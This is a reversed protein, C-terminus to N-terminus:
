HADDIGAEHQGLAPVSLDPRAPENAFRIPSALHMRGAGDRLVMGRSALHPDALAEPFTKVPGFCVDLGALVQEWAALPKSAFLAEFFAIAPAQPPGPGRLCPAVLDLRGLHGLLARIFKEEQGALAIHRGDGTRYLRYFAAGGTTREHKAVQQRNEAMAPGLLNACASVMVDHMSIDVYDGEGTRERRLLAM